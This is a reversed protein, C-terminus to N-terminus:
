RRRRGLVDFASATSLQAMVGTSTLTARNSAPSDGVSNTAIVRFYYTGSAPKTIAYSTVNAGTVVITTWNVGDTSRQVKFGTENTSNDTWKLTYKLSKRNGSVSIAANSPAVPATPPPVVASTTATAVASYESSVSGSDARVRFSYTTSSNLGTATYSTSNAALTAADTWTAGGNTSIQVVYATENTAADTWALSVSSTSVSTVTLGTPAAVVTGSPAVITGSIQYQGVDGYSGHSAVVLRYSGGALNATLSAGFTTPDQWDVIINGNADVLRVKADLNNISPVSVTFSALGAGATFSWYDLDTTKSIVGSASVTTGSVSLPAPTSVTDGAEDARYGFGNTASSIIAMDDQMTTSSTSTGYWWLSRTASYSNGMLPARGDGPGTSYSEVLTTGSYKSQHNLGFAHGAEHSSADATYRPAGNGLNAPFVFSVNDSSSTFSGVYSVGGYTGGTWSGNGGVVVRLAVGNAFSAPEVTTVNIKFPAYDEAVAAWIQQINALEQTSFTTADSDITYAATTINSYSGWIAQYHGDFDLYLTAAAGPLSSYAPVPVLAAALSGGGSTGSTSAGSLESGTLFVPTFEPEFGHSLCSSSASPTTRTELLDFTPKLPKKSPKSRLNRISLSKHNARVRGWLLNWM